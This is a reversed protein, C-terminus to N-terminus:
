TNFFLTKLTLGLISAVLIWLLRTTNHRFKTNNHVDELVPVSLVIHEIDKRMLAMDKGMGRQMEAVSVMTFSTKGSEHQLLNIKSIIGPKDLDDFFISRLEKVSDTLENHQDCLPTM